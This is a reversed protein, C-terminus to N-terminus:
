FRIGDGYSYLTYEKNTYSPTSPPIVCQLTINCCAVRNEFTKKKKKPTIAATEPSPLFQILTKPSPPPLVSLSGIQLAALRSAPRSAKSQKQPVRQPTVLILSSSLTLVSPGPHSYVPNEYDNNIHHNHFVDLDTHELESDSTSNHTDNDHQLQQLDWNIDSKSSDSVDSDSDQAKAKGKELPRFVYKHCMKMIIAYKGTKCAVHFQKQLYDFYDEWNRGSQTGKSSFDSDESIVFVM